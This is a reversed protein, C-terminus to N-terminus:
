FSYVLLELILENIFSYDYESRTDYDVILILIIAKMLFAHSAVSVETDSSESRVLTRLKYPTLAPSPLSSSDVTTMMSVPQQSSVVPRKVTQPSNQVSFDYAPNVIGEDSDAGEPSLRGSVVVSPSTIGVTGTLTDVTSSNNLLSNKEEKRSFTVVKREYINPLSRRPNSHASPATSIKRSILFPDGSSSTPRSKILYNTTNMLEDAGNDLKNPHTLPNTCPIVPNKVGVNHMAISDPQKTESSKKWSRASHNSKQSHPRDVTHKSQIQDM